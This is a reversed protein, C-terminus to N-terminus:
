FWSRHATLRGAHTAAAERLAWPPELLGALAESIVTAMRMVLHLRTNQLVFYEMFGGVNVVGTIHLDGVPPLVKNVGAGPRLAGQGICITGVNELSGLCADVALFAHAPHRRQIETMREALNGAHVPEELTGYVAAAGSLMTRLKHGTLPGLADGTSRDTGVCVVVLGHRRGTVRALGERVAERVSVVAAPDDVHVRVLWDDGPGADAAAEGAPNDRPRLSLPVPPSRRAHEDM